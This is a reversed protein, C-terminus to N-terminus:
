PALVAPTKLFEDRQMPKRHQEFGFQTDASMALPQQKM